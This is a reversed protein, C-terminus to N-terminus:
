KWVSNCINNVETPTLPQVDFIQNLDNCNVLMQNEELTNAADEYTESLYFLNDSGNEIIVMVPTNKPVGYTTCISAHDKGQLEIGPKLVDVWNGDNLIKSVKYVNSSYNSDYTAIITKFVGAKGDFGRPGQAELGTKVGNIVWCFSSSLDNYYITPFLQLAMFKDTSFTIICSYDIEDVYENANNINMSQFRMDKFTYPLSSILKDVGDIEEYILSIFGPNEFFDLVGVGGIMKPTSNKYQEQVANKLQNLININSNLDVTKIHISNGRDGKVFDHNSLIEFNKNINDMVDKIDSGYTTSNLSPSKIQKIDFNM